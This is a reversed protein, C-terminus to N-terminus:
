KAAYELLRRMAKGKRRSALQLPSKGESNKVNVDAGNQLLFRAMDHLRLHSALHLPTEQNKNQANVDAGSELLRQALTTLRLAYKKRSEWQPKLIYHNGLVLRHLPTEGEIDKADVLAGHDLLVEALDAYGNYAASHLPTKQDKDRANVDVGHELLIRAMEYSSDYEDLHINNSLQHLPTQGDANRADAEAGNDLLAQVLEIWSTHSALHLPTAQNKDRANVDSGRELLGECLQNIDEQFDYLDHYEHNPDFDTDQLLRHLPTQGDINLVSVEAGHNVLELAIFIKGHYCASHLPTKGNKDLVNLDAGHELLLQVTVIDSDFPGSSILLNQSASHLPTQGDANQANPDAGYDLLVRAIDLKARFSASHLPTSQNNSLANVDAGHELMLKVFRPDDEYWSAHHLPTQGHVDQANVNAGHNLLVLATKEDECACHLPTEHNMDKANVDLGLELLIQTVSPSADHLLTQGFVNEMNPKAGHELLLQAIQIGGYIAARRLPTEHFGNLSNVDTGHELLLRAVIFRRGELEDKCEGDGSVLHLPVRGGEDRINVDAGYKLLIGALEPCGVNAALHLPTQFYLPGANVHAGHRLLLRVANVRANDPFQIARCLPPDGHVHVRAGHELLLEAVRIHSKSLSAVLPSGHVGCSYNVQEPHKVILHNVLDHFGCLAAYYLQKTQRRAYCRFVSSFYLHMDFDVNHIRIWALFYPRDADFLMEMADNLHSSISGVQAHSTWHEAAYRLLPMDKDLNSKGRDHGEIIRDCEHDDLNLLAGLCAHALIFHAPEPLIYYRSIDGSATALRDSTLYEKVSFHSFQIVRSHNSDVISILSSCASLVAVEQDEWRWERHFKPIEGKATDLDFALVEALEEVRLPRMAVALCQLLRRAHRGQNTSEIEKLVREYTQDLSQPLEKLQRRLSPALCHRLMELQCFM